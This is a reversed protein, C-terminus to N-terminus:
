RPWQVVEKNERPFPAKRAKKARCSFKRVARLLPLARAARFFSFPVSKRPCSEKKSMQM